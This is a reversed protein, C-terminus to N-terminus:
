CLVTDCGSKRMKELLEADLCDTRTFCSWEIDLSETIIRNCLEAIVDKRATFLQQHFLFKRAGFGEM